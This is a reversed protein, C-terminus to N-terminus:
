CRAKIMEWNEYLEEEDWEDEWGLVTPGADPDDPDRSYNGNVFCIYLRGTTMGSMYCYAKLQWWYRIFWMDEIDAARRATAWTMKFEVCAWDRTDWLDPTGYWGEHELEGPLAYRSPEAEHLGRIITKELANGLNARTIEIPRNAFKNWKKPDLARMIDFIAHSVHKGPSRRAQPFLEDMGRRILKPAM